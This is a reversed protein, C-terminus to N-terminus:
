LGPPLLRNVNQFFFYLVVVFPAAVALGGLWWRRWRKGLLRGLLALAVLPLAWLIIQPWADTDDFWGTALAAAAPESVDDGTLLPAETSAVTTPTTTAATTDVITTTSAATAATVPARSTAPATSSPPTTSPAAPLTTPVVSAPPEVPPAAGNTQRLPTSASADLRAHVVLRKATSRKPHCTTLTLVADQPNSPRSLVRVDNPGIIEQSEVVYEYHGGDVSDLIVRDGRQLQDLNEFPAGYTTRHGALALNGYEGPRATGPYRGIGRKLDGTNVGNVVYLTRSSISPMSLAAVVGWPKKPPPPPATPGTTAAAPSDPRSAATDAVATTTSPTGSDTPTAAVTSDVAESDAVARRFERALDDQNARFEIGTGWLQYAVFALILLGLTILTRGLVGLAWRWDRAHHTGDM